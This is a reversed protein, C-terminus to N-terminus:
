TAGDDSWGGLERDLMSIIERLPELLDSQQESMVSLNLRDLELAGIPPLRGSGIILPTLNVRIMDVANATMRHEEARDPWGALKARLTSNRILGLDGGDILSRLSGSIPDFRASNLSAAYLVALSDASVSGSAVGDRWLESATVAARTFEIDALLRAENLRFEELLDVMFEHERRRESWEELGAQAGLALLVGTVIVLLEAGLRRTHDYRTM